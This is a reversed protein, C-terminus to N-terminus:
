MEIYINFLKVHCWTFMTNWRGCRHPKHRPLEETTDCGGATGFSRYRTDLLNYIRYIYGGQNYVVSINFKLFCVSTSDSLDSPPFYFFRSYRFTVYRIRSLALPRGSAHRESRDSTV